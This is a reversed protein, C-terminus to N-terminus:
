DIQVVVADMGFQGSEGTGADHLEAELLITVAINHDLGVAVFTDGEDLDIRFLFFNGAIVGHVANVLTIALFGSEASM